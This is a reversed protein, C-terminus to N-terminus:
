VTVAGAARMEELAADGDHPQLNVARVGDAVVTVEFGHERASLATAKVCYDTALGMLYLHQVGRERLLEPLPTGDDTRAQFASYADEHEGMGKDVIVVEPPLRLAPHFSAGPTGQICHAPWVGGFERFHTTRAPHWDRSVFVPVGAAAAAAAWANLVPMVQDGEPVGLSGGPCFDVQPDVIVVADGRRLEPVVVM